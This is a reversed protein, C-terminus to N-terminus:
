SVSLLVKAFRCVPLGRGIFVCYPRPIDAGKILIIRGRSAGYAQMRKM